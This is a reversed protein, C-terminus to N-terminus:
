NRILTRIASGNFLSTETVAEIKERTKATNNDINSIENKIQQANNNLQAVQNQLNNLKQELTVQQANLKNLAALMQKQVDLLDQLLTVTEISFMDEKGITKQVSGDKQPKETIPIIEYHTTKTSLQDLYRRLNNHTHAM